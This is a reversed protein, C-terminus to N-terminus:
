TLLEGRSHSSWAAYIDLSSQDYLRSHSGNDQQTLNCFRINPFEPKDGTANGQAKFLETNLTGTATEEVDRGTTETMSKLDHPSSM